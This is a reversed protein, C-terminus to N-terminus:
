RVEAAKFNLWNGLAWEVPESRDPGCLGDRTLDGVWIGTNYLNNLTAICKISDVDKKGFARRWNSDNKSHHFYVANRSFKGSYTVLPNYRVRDFIRISSTQNSAVLVVEENNALEPNHTLAAISLEPSVACLAFCVFINVSLMIKM